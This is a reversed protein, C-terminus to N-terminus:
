PAIRTSTARSWEAATSDDIKTIATRLADGGKADIEDLLGPPAYWWAALLAACGMQIRVVSRLERSFSDKRIKHRFAARGAFAGIAGGFLALNLLTSERVRWMGREARAKDVAFATFAAFNVAILWYTAIELPSM